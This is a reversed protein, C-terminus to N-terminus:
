PKASKAQDVRVLEIWGKNSVRDRIWSRLNYTTALTTMDSGRFPDLVVDIAITYNFM